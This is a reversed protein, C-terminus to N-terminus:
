SSMDLEKNAKGEKTDAKGPESASGACVPFCSLELLLKCAAVFAEACNRSSQMPRLSSVLITPGVVNRRAKLSPTQCADEVLEERTLRDAQDMDKWMDDSIIGSARLATYCERDTIGCANIGGSCLSKLHKLVREVVFKAFFDQFYKVCAQILSSQFPQQTHSQVGAEKYMTRGKPVEDEKNVRTESGMSTLEHSSEFESTRLPKNGDKEAEQFDSWEDLEEQTEERKDEADTEGDMEKEILEIANEENSKEDEETNKGQVTEEMFVEQSSELSKEGWSERKAENRLEIINWESLEHETSGELDKRQDKGSDDKKASKMSPMVKSLLKSCLCIGEKFDELTMMECRKTM